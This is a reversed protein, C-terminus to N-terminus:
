ITSNLFTRSADCIVLRALFHIRSVYLIQFAAVSIGRIFMITVQQDIYFGVCGIQKPQSSIYEGAFYVVNVM